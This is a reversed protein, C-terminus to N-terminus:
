DSQREKMENEEDLQEMIRAARPYGVRLRRQLFSTSIHKHEQALQRAAELLSDQPSGERQDTTPTLEEINLQADHWQGEFLYKPPDGDKIQEIFLDQTDAGATTMGWAVKGNHGHYSVGPVGPM